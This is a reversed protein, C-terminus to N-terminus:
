EDMGESTGGGGSVETAQNMPKRGAAKDEDENDERSRQKGSSKQKGSITGNEITLVSRALRELPNEGDPQWQRFRHDDYSWTLFNDQSTRPIFLISTGKRGVPIM